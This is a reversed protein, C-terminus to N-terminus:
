NVAKQNLCGVVCKQLQVRIRHARIRLANVAIGLQEAMKRRHDIKARKVDEYYELVLRRNDGPLGNLCRDLCEYEAEDAPTDVPPPGPKPRNRRLYELYVKQAVGYFYVTPDGTYSETIAALKRTVRNITEDALDDAEACGRCALIKILRQRIMEYKRGANDRDADLWNLLRDFADQSIEWEKKM